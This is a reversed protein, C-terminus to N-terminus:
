ALLSLPLVAGNESLTRSPLSSVSAANTSTGLPTLRSSSPAPRVIVSESKPKWTSSPLSQKCSTSSVPPRLTGASTTSPSPASVFALWTRMLLQAVYVPRSSIAAFMMLARSAQLMKWLAKAL